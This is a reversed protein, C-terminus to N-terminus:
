CGEKIFDSWIAAVAGGNTQEQQDWKWGLPALLDNGFINLVFDGNFRFVVFPFLFVSIFGSFAVRILWQCHRHGYSIKNELCAM